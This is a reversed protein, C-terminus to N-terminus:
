STRRVVALPTNSLGYEITAKLALDDDYVEIDGNELGAIFYPDDTVDLSYAGSARPAGMAVSSHAGIATLKHLNSGEIFIARTGAPNVRTHPATAFQATYLSAASTGTTLRLWPNQGGRRWRWLVLSGDASCEVRHLVTSGSGAEVQASLILGATRDFGRIYCDATTGEYNFIYAKEGSETVALGILEPEPGPDRYSVRSGDALSRWELYFGSTIDLIWGDSILADLLYSVTVTWEKSGSIYLHLNTGKKVLIKPPNENNISVKDPNYGLDIDHAPQHVGAENFVRIEGIDSAILIWKPSAAPPRVCFKVAGSLVLREVYGTTFDVLSMYSTQGYPM